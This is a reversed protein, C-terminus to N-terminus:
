KIKKLLVQIGPLRDGEVFFALMAGGGTSVYSIKEMVGVEELLPITDGGGVTVEAKHPLHGLYRALGRSGAAFTSIESVGMPGNWLISGAGRIAKAWLALTQPGIDVVIDKEQVGDITTARTKAGAKMERAVVYDVPLHINKHKLLKLAATKQGPELYSAGIQKGRAAECTVAMAGGLYVAQQKKQLAEMVELKSSIKKGGFFAIAPKQHASRVEALRNVEEELAPGAYSPLIKAVGVVSAHARHCVAFAENVFVEGFSALARSFAALNKEEGAFFRLNELLFVSGPAASQVRMLMDERTKAVSYDGKMWEVTQRHKKLSPLLHKTSFTTEQASPRGVHTILVTIAGARRLRDILPFSRTLKLHSEQDTSGDLPINWDVRVLVRKGRWDRLSEPLSRLMM